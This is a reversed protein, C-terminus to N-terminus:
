KRAAPSAHAEMLDLLRKETPTRMLAPDAGCLWCWLRVHKGNGSPNSYSFLAARSDSCASARCARQGFLSTWPKMSSRTNHRPGTFNHLPVTHKCVTCTYHLNNISHSISPGMGQGQTRVYVFLRCHVSSFIVSGARQVRLQAARFNSQPPPPIAHAGPSHPPPPTGSIPKQAPRARQKTYPLINGGFASSCLNQGPFNKKVFFHEGVYTYDFHDACRPSGKSGHTNSDSGGGGPVAPLAAGARAGRGACRGLLPPPQAFPSGHWGGGAFCNEERRTTATMTMPSYWTKERGSDIHSKEGEVYLTHRKVFFTSM